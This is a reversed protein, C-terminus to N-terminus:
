STCGWRLRRRAKLGLRPERAKAAAAVHEGTVPGEARNVLEGVERLAGAMRELFAARPSSGPPARNDCVLVRGRSLRLLDALAQTYRCLSCKFFCLSSVLIDRKLNL